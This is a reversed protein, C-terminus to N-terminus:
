FILEARVLKVMEVTSNALNAVKDNDWDPFQTLMNKIVVRQNKMYGEELGKELGKELGQEHAEAQIEKIARGGFLILTEKDPEMKEQIKPSQTFNEFETELNKPLTMLHRVFNLLRFSKRKDFNKELTVEVIKKKFELRQFDNKGAKIMYLAALVAVSFPNDSTILDSIKQKRVIYANFQYSLKTGFNTMTFCDFVAPKRTGTYIVLATIDTTKYKTAIYMFYWFMREPFNKDFKGQFEIHLIIIKIKGDKLRYKIIKDAIKKTPANGTFVDNFEQELFEPAVSIDISDLLLKGFFFLIFDADFESLLDKWLSDAQSTPTDTMKDFINKFYQNDIPQLIFYKKFNSM